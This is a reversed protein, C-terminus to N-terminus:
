KKAHCFDVRGGRCWSETSGVASGRLLEGVACEFLAAGWSRAVAVAVTGDGHAHRGETKRDIFLCHARAFCVSYLQLLLCFSARLFGDRM